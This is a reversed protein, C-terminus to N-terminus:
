KQAGRFQFIELVIVGGELTKAGLYVGYGRVGMEGVLGPMVGRVANAFDRIGHDAVGGVGQGAVELHQNFCGTEGVATREDDIGVADDLSDFDVGAADTAVCAGENVFDFGGLIDSGVFAFDAGGFPFFARGGELWAEIQYAFNLYTLGM